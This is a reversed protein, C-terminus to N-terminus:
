LQALQVAHPLRHHGQGPRPVGGHPDQGVCANKLAGATPKATLQAPGACAVRVRGAHVCKTLGRLPKYFDEKGLEAANDDKELFALIEEDKICKLFAKFTAVADRCSNARRTAPVVVSWRGNTVGGGLTEATACFARGYANIDRNEAHAKEIGVTSGIRLLLIAFLTPLVARVHDEIEPVAFMEGLTCTTAMTAKTGEKIFTTKTKPKETYPQSSALLDMYHKLLLPSLKADKSLTALIKVV